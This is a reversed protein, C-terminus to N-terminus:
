SPGPRNAGELGTVGPRRSESIRHITVYNGSAPYAIIPWGHAHSKCQSVYLCGVHWGLSPATNRRKTADPEGSRGAQVCEDWRCSAAGYRCGTRLQFPDISSTRRECANVSGHLAKRIKHDIARMLQVDCGGEAGREDTRCWKCWRCWKCARRKTENRAEGVWEFTWGRQRFGQPDSADM